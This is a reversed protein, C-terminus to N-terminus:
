SLPLLRRRKRSNLEPLPLLPTASAPAPFSTSPAVRKYAGSPLPAASSPSHRHPACHRRKIGCLPSSSVARRPRYRALVRDLPSSPAPGVEGTRRPSPRPSPPLPPSPPRLHGRRATHPSSSSAASRHPRDALPLSRALSSNAPPTPEDALPLASHSRARFCTLFPGFPPSRGRCPSSEAWSPPSLTERKRKIKWNRYGNRYGKRKFL